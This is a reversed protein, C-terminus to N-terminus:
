LLYSLTMSLFINGVCDLKWQVLVETQDGYISLLWWHFDTPSMKEEHFLEIVSGQKMWVEMYSVMRDSHEEASM